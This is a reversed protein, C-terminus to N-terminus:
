NNTTYSYRCNKYGKYGGFALQENRCESLSTNAEKKTDDKFTALIDDDQRDSGATQLDKTVSEANDSKADMSMTDLVDVQTVDTNSISSSTFSERHVAAEKQIDQIWSVVMTDKDNDNGNYRDDQLVDVVFTQFWEPDHAAVTQYL